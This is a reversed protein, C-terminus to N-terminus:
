THVRMEKKEKEYDADIILIENNVISQKLARVFREPNKIKMMEGRLPYWKKGDVSWEYRLSQYITDNFPVSVDNEKELKVTNDFMVNLCKRCIPKMDSLLFAAPHGCNSCVADKLWEPIPYLTVTVKKQERMVYNTIKSIDQGKALRIQIQMKECM